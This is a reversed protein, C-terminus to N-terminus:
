GRVLLFLVVCYLLPNYQLSMGGSTDQQCGPPTKPNTCMEKTWGLCSAYGLAHAIYSQEHSGSLLHAMPGRAHLSVDEGAHTESYFPVAADQRFDKETTDVTTLDIRPIESGNVMRHNNFGPGNAYSLTLYPKGDDGLELVGENMVLGLIDTDIDQYGSMTFVHSHDATVLILTDMASTKSAAVRVAEDLALTDELARYANTDHHAHDIRGGEVLLVYGKSAKMLIDLAKDVMEGLSPEGGVDEARDSEYRMHGQEFLGFLYEVEATNINDFQSKNYIYKYQTELLAKNKQTDLWDQILDLGDQRSGNRSPYEPDATMNTMFAARGGGLVVQIDSNRPGHILQYAIDRCGEQGAPIDTDDEWDRNPSHAYASAPTAHTIRTTTVIGASKGEMMGYHLLSNIENGAVTSCNSRQVKQNVGIVGTRTKEGCLFATATGASDPTQYDTNYTKILGTTTFEEWSFKTETISKGLKQAKYFRAATHTSIGMGDGIFIIVNKAPTWTPWFNLSAQVEAQGLSVWDHTESAANIGIFKGSASPHAHYSDGGLANIEGLSLGILIGLLTLQRDLDM